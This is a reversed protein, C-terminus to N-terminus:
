DSALITMGTKLALGGEWMRQFLYMQQIQIKNATERALKNVNSRCEIYGSNDDYGEHRGNM